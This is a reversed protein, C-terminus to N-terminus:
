IDSRVLYVMDFTLSNVTSFDGLSEAFGLDFILYLPSLEIINSIAVADILDMEIELSNSSAVWPGIIEYSNTPSTPDDALTVSSIEKTSWGPDFTIDLRFKLGRWELFKEPLFLGVYFSPGNISEGTRNTTEITKQELVEIQKRFQRLTM